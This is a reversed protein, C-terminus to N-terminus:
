EKDWLHSTRTYSGYYGGGVYGGAYDDLAKVGTRVTAFVPNYYLILVPAEQELFESIQRLLAGQDAERTASRYRDTLDNFVANEYHGRNAGAYGNAVTPSPPLFRNLTRDSDGSGTMEAGSYSQGYERDGERAPPQVLISSNVGARKWMDAAATMLKQRPPGGFIEMPFRQGEANALVGDPGPTLGAAAFEQAARRSDGASNAFVDKTYPYLPHSPTVISKAEVDFDPQSSFVLDALGARDLAYYLARRVRPDIQDRSGVYEPAVQFFLSFTAGRVVPTRGMKTDVWTSRLAQVQDNDLLSMTVDLEGALIAAHLANSDLVQRIIVRDLKPRGLYYRDNAEFVASIGPEYRVLHFPGTHVYESTWYPLNLFREKDGRAYEEGLLHEPLPWLLKAGLADALYFPGKWTILVSHPDLAEVSSIRLVAIRDSVPLQPDVQVKFGFVVDDATFRAGDHWFVDDRLTYLTTMRGDDLLKVTGNELSPREKAMQPTPRGNADSTILGNSHLEIFSVMGAGNGPLNLPALSDIPLSVATTLTKQGRSSETSAAGGQRGAAPTPQSPACAALLTCAALALVFWRTM